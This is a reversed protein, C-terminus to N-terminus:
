SIPPARPIQIVHTNKDQYQSQFVKIKNVLTYSLDYDHHTISSYSQNNNWTLYPCDHHFDTTHFQEFHPTHDTCSAIFSHNHFSEFENTITSFLCLLIVLLVLFQKGKGKQQALIDSDM